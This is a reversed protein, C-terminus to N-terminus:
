DAMIVTNVQRLGQAYACLVLLDYARHRLLTPMWGGFRAVKWRLLWHLGTDTFLDVVAGELRRDMPAGERLTPLVDLHMESLRAPHLRAIRPLSDQGCVRKKQLYDVLSHHHVHQGRAGALHFFEIDCGDELRFALEMDEFGYAGFDEDFGGVEVLADRPVSANQTLFYRAPCRAGTPTKAIGRTDLYEFLTSDVIGPATIVEGLYVGRRRDQANCHAVLALEDIVIDDDLFLVTKGRAMQWGHNRAHARGRNTSLAADILPLRGKFETLIEATVGDGSGDDVVIVEWAEPARANAIGDLTQRLTTAKRYTPIVVSLGLEAMLEGTGMACSTHLNNPHLPATM